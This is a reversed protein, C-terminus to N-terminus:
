SCIKLDLSRFTAIFPGLARSVGSGTDPIASGTYYDANHCRYKYRLKRLAKRMMRGLCYVDDVTDM